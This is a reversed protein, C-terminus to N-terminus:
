ECLYEDDQYFGFGRDRFTTSYTAIAWLERRWPLPVFAEALIKEPVRGAGLDLPEEKVADDFEARMRDLRPTDNWWGHEPLYAMDHAYVCKGDFRCHGLLWYVCVNRGRCGCDTYSVYINLACECNTGFM